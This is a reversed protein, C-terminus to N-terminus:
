ENAPEATLGTLLTGIGAVTPAEATAVLSWQERRAADATTPGAALLWPRGVAPVAGSLLGVVSPSAVLLADAGGCADRASAPSALVTRYCIVREVTVGAAELAGVLGERSMSGSPFLVPGGVGAELMMAALAEARGPGGPEANLTRVERFSARLERATREGVAWATTAVPQHPLRDALVAAARPSTVAVASFTDLHRLAHDLSSWDEPPAFRILPSRRVSWGTMEAIPELGEFSGEASTVVLTRFSASM